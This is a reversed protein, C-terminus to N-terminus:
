HGGDPKFCGGESYIGHPEVTAGTPGVSGDLCSSMRGPPGAVEVVFTTGSAGATVTVHDPRRGLGVLAREVSRPGTDALRSLAQKAQTAAAAARALDEGCLDLRRQFAHNAAYNPPMDGPLDGVYGSPGYSPVRVQQDPGACGQAPTAATATMPASPGADASGESGCAALVMGLFPLAALLM